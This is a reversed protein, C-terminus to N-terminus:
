RAGIRHVPGYPHGQPFTYARRRSPRPDTRLIKGLVIRTAPLALAWSRIRM